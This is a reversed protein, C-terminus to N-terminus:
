LEGQVLRLGAEVHEGPAVWLWVVRFDTGTAEDRVTDLRQLDCVDAVLEFDSIAQEGGGIQERGAPADIVARIGTAVTERRGEAGSYPEADLDEATDRLISITHLAFPIM